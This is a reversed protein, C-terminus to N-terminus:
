CGFFVFCFFQQNFLQKLFVHVLTFSTLSVKVIVPFPVPVVAPAIYIIKEVRSPFTVAFQTAVVAGMSYGLLTVKSNINNVYLLEVLQQSLLKPTYKIDLIDTRGRGYLDYLLVRYGNAIM